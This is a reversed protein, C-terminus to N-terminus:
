EDGPIVLIPVTSIRITAEAVSGLMVRSFGSRGHTSMVILDIGHDRAYEAITDKPVGTDIITEVEVGEPVRDAVTQEFSERASKRLEAEYLPLDFGAIQTDGYGTISLSPMSNIVHLGHIKANFQKALVVASDLAKKSLESGDFPWLISKVSLM